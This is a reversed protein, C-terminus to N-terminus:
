LASVLIDVIGDDLQEEGLSRNHYPRDCQIPISVVPFLLLFM